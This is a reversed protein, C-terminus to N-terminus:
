KDSSRSFAVSRLGIVYTIYLLMYLQDLLTIICTKLQDISAFALQGTFSDFFNANLLLLLLLIIIRCNILRRLMDSDSCPRTFSRGYLIRTVAMSM